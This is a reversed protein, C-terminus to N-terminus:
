TVPNPQCRRFSCTGALREIMRALSLVDAGTSRSPSFNIQPISEVILSGQALILKRGCSGTTNSLRYPCTGVDLILYVVLLRVTLDDSVRCSPEQKTTSVHANSIKNEIVTSDDDRYMEDVCRYVDGISLSPKGRCIRAFLCCPVTSTPQRAEVTLRPHEDTFGLGLDTAHYETTAFTRLSQSQLM